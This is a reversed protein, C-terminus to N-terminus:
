PASSGAAFRDPPFMASGGDDDSSPEMFEFQDDISRVETAVAGPFAALVSQALPSQEVERRAEIANRLAIRIETEFDAFLRLTDRIARMEDYGVAEEAATMKGRKVLGPYVRHRTVLERHAADAQLRLPVKQAPAHDTAGSM